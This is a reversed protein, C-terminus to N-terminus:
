YWMYITTALGICPAQKKNRDWFIHFAKSYFTLVYAIVRSKPNENYMFMTTFSGFLRWVRMHEMTVMPTTFHQMKNQKTPVWVLEWDGGHWGVQAKHYVLNQPGKLIPTCHFKHIWKMINLISIIQPVMAWNVWFGFQRHSNVNISYNKHEM